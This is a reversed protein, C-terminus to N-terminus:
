SVDVKESWTKTSPATAAHVSSMSTMSIASV